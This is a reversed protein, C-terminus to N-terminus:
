ETAADTRTNSGKIGAMVPLASPRVNSSAWNEARGQFTGAPTARASICLKALVVWKSSSKLCSAYPLVWSPAGRPLMLAGSTM